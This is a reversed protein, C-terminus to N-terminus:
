PLTKQELDTRCVFASDFASPAVMSNCFNKKKKVLSAFYTGLSSARSTTCLSPVRGSVPGLVSLSVFPLLTAPLLWKRSWFGRRFCTGVLRLGTSLLSSSATKSPNVFWVGFGFMLEKWLGFSLHLKSRVVHNKAAGIEEFPFALVGIESGGSGTKRSLCSRNTQIIHRSEERKAKISFRPSLIQSIGIIWKPWPRLSGWSRGSKCAM